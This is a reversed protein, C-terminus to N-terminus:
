IMNQFIASISPLQTPTKAPTVSQSRFNIMDKQKYNLSTLSSTVSNNDDASTASFVGPSVDKSSSSSTDQSNEVNRDKHLPDLDEDEEDQEQQGDLKITKKPSHSPSIYNDIEDKPSSTDQAIISMRWQIEKESRKPLLISLEMMSLNRSKNELLLKDEEPTWPSATGGSNVLSNNDTNIINSLDTKQAPKQSHFSQTPQQTQSHSRM